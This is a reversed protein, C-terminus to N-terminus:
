VKISVGNITINHSLTNIELAEPALANDIIIKGSVTRIKAEGSIKRTHIRGSVNDLSIINGEIDKAELAGSISELEIKVAVIDNLVLGGSVSKVAITDGSISDMQINGSVTAIQCNDIAYDIPIIINIKKAFYKKLPLLHKKNNLKICKNSVELDYYKKDSGVFEVSPSDVDKFTINLAESIVNINIKYDEIRYFQYNM